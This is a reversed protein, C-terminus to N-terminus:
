FVNYQRKAYWLFVGSIHTLSGDTPPTALWEGYAKLTKWKTSFHDAAAAQLEHNVYICFAVVPVIDPHDCESAKGINEHLLNGIRPIHCFFCSKNAFKEPYRISTKWDRYNSWQSKLNPCAVLTHQPGGEVNTMICYACSSNFISLAMQFTAVFELGEGERKAKRDKADDMLSTFASGDGPGHRKRKLSLRADTALPLTPLPKDKILMKEAPVKRASCLSCKQRKPNSHCYVGVGDCYKTIAYRLCDEECFIYDHM